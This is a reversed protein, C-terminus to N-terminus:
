KKIFLKQYGVNYAIVFICLAILLQWGWLIFHIQFFYLQSCMTSLILLLVCIGRSMNQADWRFWLFKKLAISFQPNWFTQDVRDVFVSDAYRHELVDAISLALAALIIILLYM